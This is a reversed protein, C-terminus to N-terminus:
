KFVPVLYYSKVARFSWVVAVKFCTSIHNLQEFVERLGINYTLVFKLAKTKHPNLPGKEPVHSLCPTYVENVSLYM